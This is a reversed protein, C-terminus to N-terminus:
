WRLKGLLSANILCVRRLAKGNILLHTLKHLNKIFLCLLGLSPHLENMHLLGRKISTVRNLARGNMIVSIFTNLNAVSRGNHVRPHEIGLEKAQSNIRECSTRKTYMSKFLPSTRDLSIRM